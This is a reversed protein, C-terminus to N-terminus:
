PVVEYVRFPAMTEVGNHAQMYGHHFFWFFGNKTENTERIRDNPITPDLGGSFSMYGSESLHFSGSTSTQFGDPWQHSFRHLSGDPMRVFDGVRPGQIANFLALRAQKIEEDRADFQPRM